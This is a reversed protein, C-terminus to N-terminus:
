LAVFWSWYVSQMVSPSLVHFNGEGLSGRLVHEQRGELRRKVIGRDEVEAAPPHSHLGGLPVTSVSLVSQPYSQPQCCLAPHARWLRLAYAFAEQCSVRCCASQKRRCVLEVATVGSVKSRASCQFVPPKILDCKWVKPFHQVEKREMMVRGQQVFTYGHNTNSMMSYQHTLCSLIHQSLCQIRLETSMSLFWM